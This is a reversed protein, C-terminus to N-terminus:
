PNSRPPLPADAHECPKLKGNTTEVDPAHDGPEVVYGVHGGVHTMADTLWHRISVRGVIREDAFAFLFTSPEQVPPLDTGREQKDLVELYRRLSMGEQYHHLFTPVEPTTALHARLVEGEEDLRPRRLVLDSPM